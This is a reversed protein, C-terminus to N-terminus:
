MDAFRIKEMEEAVRRVRDGVETASRWLGGFFRLFLRFGCFLFGNRTGKYACVIWDDLWRGGDDKTGASSRGCVKRVDKLRQANTACREM